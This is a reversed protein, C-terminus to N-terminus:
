SAGFVLSMTATWKHACVQQVKHVARKENCSVVRLLTTVLVAAVLPVCEGEKKIQKESVNVCEQSLFTGESIMAFLNPQFLVKTVRFLVFACYRSALDMRFFRPLLVGLLETYFLLHEQVFPQWHAEVGQSISKQRDAHRMESCAYRWPQIFSLWTELPLRLSSDLPWSALAHKLFMYLRKRFLRPLVKVIFLNFGNIGLLNVFSRAKAQLMSGGMPVDQAREECFWKCLAADLDECKSTRIQKRAVSGSDGQLEQRVKQKQLSATKRLNSPDPPM